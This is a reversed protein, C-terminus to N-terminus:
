QLCEMEEKTLYCKGEYYQNIMDTFHQEWYLRKGNTHLHCELCLPVFLRPTTEDCCSNKKFNVHHVHLKYGNQPIGCEVCQYGFFARVREKFENNFKICYPEYSHGGKWGPSKEGVMAKQSCSPSCYKNGYQKGNRSKKELRSPFIYFDNGCYECVFKIQGGKWFHSKEGTHKLIHEPPMKRGKMKIAQKKHSEETLPLGGRWMNKESLIKRTKESVPHGKLKESIKRKQEETNPIGKHVDSMHKRYEPNDWLLKHSIGNKRCWEVRKIPDKPPPM